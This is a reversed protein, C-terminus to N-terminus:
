RSGSLCEEAPTRAPVEFWVLKEGRGIDIGWARSLADVIRLGRGHPDMPGPSRLRPKGGGRDSAEVRIEAADQQVSIEFGDDTHRVCNTALESVMLEVVQLIDPAVGQLVTKVFKRAATVSAPENPFTRTQRM